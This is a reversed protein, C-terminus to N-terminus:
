EPQLSVHIGDRLAAIESELATKAAAGQYYQGNGGQWQLSDFEDGGIYLLSELHAIVEAVTGTARPSDHGDYLVQTPRGDRATYEALDFYTTATM